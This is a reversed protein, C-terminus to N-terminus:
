KAPAEPAAAGCASPAPAPAEPAAAGCASPAPAPAEPAAPGHHCGCARDAFMEDAKDSFHKYMVGEIAVIAAFMLIYVAVGLIYFLWGVYRIHGLGFFLGAVIGFVLCTIVYIWFMTWKEGETVKWSVKLSKHPALKKDILFLVAFEWALGVVIGPFFMFATAAATGISVLGLLLFFDGLNKRNEQDFISTPNVVEGRGIKVIAKYLGVTTGVNLWPIWVTIVYLLVMVILSGVNKLGYVIGDSITKKIQLKEM